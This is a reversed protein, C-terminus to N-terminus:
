LFGVFFGVKGLGAALLGAALLSFLGHYQLTQSTFWDGSFDALGATQLPQLLYVEHNGGMYSYGCAALMMLASSAWTAIRLPWSARHDDRQADSQVDLQEDPQESSNAM